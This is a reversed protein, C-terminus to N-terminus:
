IGMQYLFPIKGEGTHKRSHIARLFTRTIVIASLMSVVIGIGLTLAFGKVADTGFYWLILATLISSINSDRIASWARFFGEEISRSLSKGKKLEEKMREFILINADVAMGLSLIFGAIGATTFTVPILKFIALSLAVYLLLAVIAVLGPLRYWALMFIMIFGFGILGAFFSKELSETGHSAEVREQAILEIPARLAGSNLRQALLRAEEPAFQGTIQATGGSIKQQVTPISIPLGDLYIAITKGINEETLREFIAAGEDNFVLYVYPKGFEDFDMRANRLYQGNLESPTYLALPNETITSTSVDNREVHFELFPTEGILAIAGEADFVGALKVSIHDEGLTRQTRVQPESVGFFNVRREIVDRLGELADAQQDDSVNSLDARYVLHIGGQLDLGLRYPLDLRSLFGPMGFVPYAFYAAALGVILVGTAILRIKM